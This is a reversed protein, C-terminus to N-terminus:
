KEVQVTLTKHQPEVRFCTLTLRTTLPFQFIYFFVFNLSM